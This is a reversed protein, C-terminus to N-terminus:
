IYVVEKIVSSILCNHGYITMGDFIFLKKDIVCSSFQTINLIQISLDKFGFAIEAIILIILTPSHSFM